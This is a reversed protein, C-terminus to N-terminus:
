IRWAKARPSCVRWGTEEPQGLLHSSLDVKGEGQFGKSVDRAQRTKIGSKQPLMYDASLGLAMRQCIDQTVPSVSSVSSCFPMVEAM